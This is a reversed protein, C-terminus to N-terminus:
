VIRSGRLEDQRAADAVRVSPETSGSTNWDHKQLMEAAPEVIPIRQHGITERFIARDNKEVICTNRARASLRSFGDRAHRLMDDREDVREPQVPDIQEAKRQPAEDRLLDDEVM